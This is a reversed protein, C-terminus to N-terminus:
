RWTTCYKVYYRMVIPVWTTFESRVERGAGPAQGLDHERARLEAVVVEGHLLGVRRGARDDHAGRLLLGLLGRRALELAVRAAACLAGALAAAVESGCHRDAPRRHARRGFVEGGSEGADNSVLEM